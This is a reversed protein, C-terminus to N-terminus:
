PAVGQAYEVSDGHEGAVILVVLGAFALALVVGLAVTAVRVTLAAGQAAPTPAMMARTRAEATAIDAALYRAAPGTETDM